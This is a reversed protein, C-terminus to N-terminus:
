EDPFPDSLYKFDVRVGRTRWPERIDINTDAERKKSSEPRNELAASRTGDEREGECPPGHVGELPANPEIAIAKLPMTEVPSLFRFNRSLLVNTTAANYYKVSQGKATTLM